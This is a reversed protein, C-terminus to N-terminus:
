RRLDIAANGIKGMIWPETGNKSIFIGSSIGMGGEAVVLLRDDNLWYGFDSGTANVLHTKASAIDYVEFSVSEHGISGLSIFKNSPFLQAFRYTYGSTTPTEQYDSQAIIKKVGLEDTYYVVGNVVCPNSECKGPKETPAPLSPRPTPTAVVIKNIFVPKASSKGSSILIGYKIGLCFGLLPLTVFLIAAILKSLPTVTTLFKPLKKSSTKASLVQITQEEM